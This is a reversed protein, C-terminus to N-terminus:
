DLTGGWQESYWQKVQEPSDSATLLKVAAKIEHEVEEGGRLKMLADFVDNAFVKPQNGIEVKLASTPDLLEQLAPASGDFGVVLQKDSVKGQGASRLANLAGLASPDNIGFWVNADPAKQLLDEAAKTATDLAGGGDQEAVVTANPDVSKVGEVFGNARNVTQQLQPQTLLAMKIPTGPFTEQFYEAAAVGGERGGGISDEIAYPALDTEVALTVVSAGQDQAQKVLPVASADDVPSFSIANVGQTLMAEMNAQQKEVKIDSDLVTLGVGADDALRQLEDAYAVYFEAQMTLVVAGLTTDAPVASATTDANTAAADDDDDGCAALGVALALACAIALARRLGASMM